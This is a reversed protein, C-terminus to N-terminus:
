TTTVDDDSGRAAKPLVRLFRLLNTLHYTSNPSVLFSLGTLGFSLRPTDFNLMPGLTLGTGPALNEHKLWPVKLPIHRARVRAAQEEAPNGLPTDTVRIETIM